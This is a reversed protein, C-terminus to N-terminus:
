ATLAAEDATFQAGVATVMLACELVWVTTVVTFVM